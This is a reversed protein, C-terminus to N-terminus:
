KSLSVEITNGTLNKMLCCEVMKLNVGHLSGGGEVREGQDADDNRKVIFGM